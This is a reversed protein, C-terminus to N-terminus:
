LAVQTRGTSSTQLFLPLTQWLLRVEASSIMPVKADTRALTLLEDIMTAMRDHAESAKEFHVTNGSKRVLPLRGQAGNLPNRLDHSIESAFRDLRKDKRELAVTTEDLKDRQREFKRKRQERDTVDYFLCTM